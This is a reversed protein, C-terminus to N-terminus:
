DDKEIWSTLKSIMTGGFAGRCFPFFAIALLLAIIAVIIKFVRKVVRSNEQQKRKIEILSKAKLFYFGKPYRACYANLGEITDKRSQFFAEEEPDNCLQVGYSSTQMSSVNGGRINNGCKPCYNVNDDAIFNGCKTCYM